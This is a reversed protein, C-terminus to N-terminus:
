RIKTASQDTSSKRKIDSLLQAPHTNLIWQQINWLRLWDAPPIFGDPHNSLTAQLYCRYAYDAPHNELAPYKQKM